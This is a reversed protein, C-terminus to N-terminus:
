DFLRFGRGGLPMLEVRPPQGKPWDLTRHRRLWDRIRPDRFEPCHRWFGPTLSLRQLAGDMEVDIYDWTRNFFKDRNITGVSIGYSSGPQNGSRWASGQM